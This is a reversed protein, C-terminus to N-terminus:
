KGSSGRNINMKFLYVVNYINTIGGVFREKIMGKPIGEIKEKISDLKAAMTDYYGLVKNYGEGSLLNKVIPDIEGLNFFMSRLSKKFDANFDEILKEIVCIRVVKYGLQVHEANRNSYTEPYLEFYAEGIEIMDEKEFTFNGNLEVVSQSFTTLDSNKIFLDAIISKM